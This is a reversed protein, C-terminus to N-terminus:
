LLGGREFFNPRLLYCEVVQVELLIVLEDERQQIAETYTRYSALHAWERESVSVQASRGRSLTPSIPRIPDSGGVIMAVTCEAVQSGIVRIEVRPPEIIRVCFM